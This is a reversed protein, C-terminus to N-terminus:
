GARVTSAGTESLRRLRRVLEEEDIEGDAFRRRLEAEAVERSLANRHRTRDESLMRWFGWLVLLIAGVWFAWWLWHIGMFLGSEHWVGSQTMMLTTM